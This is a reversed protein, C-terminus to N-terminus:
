VDVQRHDEQLITVQITIGNTKQKTKDNSISFLYFVTTKLQPLLIVVQRPFLQANPKGHTDKM